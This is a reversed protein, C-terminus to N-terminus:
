GMFTDCRLAVSLQVIVLFFFAENYERYIFYRLM